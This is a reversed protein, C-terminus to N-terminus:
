WAVVREQAVFFSRSELVRVGRRRLRRDLAHSAHGFAGGLGRVRTDFTVAAHPLAINGDVWERLGVRQADPELRVTSRPRDATDAASARTAPRSLSWAHTPAGLIVVDAWATAPAADAVRVVDVPAMRRLGDAIAEAVRRTNGFMSEYVIVTSM